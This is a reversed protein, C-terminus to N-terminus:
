RTRILDRPGAKDGCGKEEGSSKQRYRDEDNFANFAQRSYYLIKVTNYTPPLLIDWENNNSLYEHLPSHKILMDFLVFVGFLCEASNM